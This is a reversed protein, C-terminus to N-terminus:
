VKDVKVRLTGSALDRTSGSLNNLYVRVSNAVRVYGSFIVGDPNVSFSVSVYDGLAAGTVAVDTFTSAGILLSPPDYTASATLPAGYRSLGVSFLTNTTCTAFTQDDLLELVAGSGSTTRVGYFGGILYNPATNRVNNVNAGIQLCAQVSSVPTESNQLYNGGVQVSNIQGNADAGVFGIGGGVPSSTKLYCQGYNNLVRVNEMGANRGNFIALHTFYETSTPSLCYNGEVLMNNIPSRGGTGHDNNVYLFARFSGGGLGFHARNRLIKVDSPADSPTVGDPNRTTVGIATLSGLTLSGTSCLLFTNDQITIGKDSQSRIIAGYSYNGSFICKEIVLDHNQTDGQNNVTNIAGGWYVGTALQCHYTDGSIFGSVNYDLNTNYWQVDKFMNDRQMLSSIDKLFVGAGSITDFTNGTITASTVGELYICHTVLLNTTVNTGGVANCNVFTCGDVIVADTYTPTSGGRIIYTNASASTPQSLGGDFTIGQIVVTGSTISLVNGGSVGLNPYIVSGSFGFLTKSSSISITSTVRYTGEPFYLTDSANVAVQIAATENTTGDGKAGFAKVNYGADGPLVILKVGGATTVHQGSTVVEYAFGEERTQVVDGTTAVLTTDALLAAVDKFWHLRSADTGELRAEKANITLTNNASDITKNSFVQVDSQMGEALQSRSIRKTESATADFIVLDDNNASNAGSLATLDTIRKGPM